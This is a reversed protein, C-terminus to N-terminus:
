KIRQVRYGRRDDKVGKSVYFKRRDDRKNQRYTALYVAIFSKLKEPVFFTMGVKTLQDYPYEVPRGMKVKIIPRQKEIEYTM